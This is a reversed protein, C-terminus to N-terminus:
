RDLVRFAERECFAGGAGERLAARRSSEAASGLELISQVVEQGPRQDWSNVGLKKRKM